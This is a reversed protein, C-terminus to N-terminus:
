SLHKQRLGLISVFGTCAICAALWLHSRCEDDITWVPLSISSPSVESDAQGIRAMHHWDPGSDTALFGSLKNWELSLSLLPSM